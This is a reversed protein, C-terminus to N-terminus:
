SGKSSFIRSFALVLFRIDIRRNLPIAYKATPTSIKWQQCHYAFYIINSNSAWYVFICKNQRNGSVEIQLKMVSIILRSRESWNMDGLKDSWINKWKQKWTLCLKRPRQRSWHSSNQRQRPPPVGWAGSKRGSRRGSGGSFNPQTVM